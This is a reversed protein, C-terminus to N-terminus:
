YVGEEGFRKAIANATFILATGVLGRVLGVAAAFGWDGGQIGRFFVFTDLVESATAGVAGRQLYYQEFGVSLMAGLRLILLLVIVNRIGPLTVHWLRRWGGAGDVVAAEYLEVEIRTLAALFIITGWGMEKWISQLVVLGKFFAPNGMINITDQGQNRLLQNIFGAGGFVQQWLAIVIVWSLFHPLYVISQMTRKVRDSMISNLILALSLPAPFAFMLQLLEIQLTNILALKFDADTFLRRFNQLGVFPSGTIGLFPSYDQFAIVNGLLPLYEFVLFYLAGPVIFLYMWRERVIRQGLTPGSRPLASGSAATQGLVPTVTPNVVTSM